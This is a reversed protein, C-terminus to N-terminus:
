PILPKNFKMPGAEMKKFLRWEVKKIIRGEPSRTHDISYEVSFDNRWNWHLFSIFVNTGGRTFCRIGGNYKDALPFWTKLEKYQPMGLLNVVGWENLVYCDEWPSEEHWRTFLLRKIKRIIKM